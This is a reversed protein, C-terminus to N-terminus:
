QNIPIFNVKKNTLGTKINGTIVQVGFIGFSTHITLGDEEQFRKSLHSAIESIKKDVEQKWDRECHALFEIRSTKTINLHSGPIFGAFMCEDPRHYIFTYDRSRAAAPTTRHTRRYDNVEFLINVSLIKGPTCCPLVMEAMKNIAEGMDIRQLDHYYNM